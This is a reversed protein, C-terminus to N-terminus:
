EKDNEDEPLEVDSGKPSPFDGYRDVRKVLDPSISVRADKKRGDRTASQFFLFGEEEKKFDEMNIWVISGDKYEVFIGRKKDDSM